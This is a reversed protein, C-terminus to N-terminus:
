YVWVPTNAELAAIDASSAETGKVTLSKKMVTGHVAVSGATDKATDIDQICVGVPTKKSDSAAPDFSVAKGATSLAIIEGARIIGAGSAFEMTRIVAPHRGDTVTKGTITQTGVVGNVTAM